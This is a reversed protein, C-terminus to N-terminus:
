LEAVVSQEVQHSCPRPSESCSPGLRAWFAVAVPDKGIPLMTWSFDDGRAFVAAGISHKKRALTTVGM